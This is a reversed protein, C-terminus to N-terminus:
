DFLNEGDGGLSFTDLPSLEGMYDIELDDAAAGKAAAPRGIYSSPLRRLTGIRPYIVVETTHRIVGDNGEWKRTALTGSIYVLSGKQLTEAARRAADPQNVVVNHGEIKEKFQGDGIPWSRSTIVRLNCVAGGNQFERLHPDRALRGLLRVENIM